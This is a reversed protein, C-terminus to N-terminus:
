SFTNVCTPMGIRILAGDTRQIEEAEAAVIFVVIHEGKTSEGM